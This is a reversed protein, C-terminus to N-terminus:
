WRASGRCCRRHGGRTSGWGGVEARGVPDLVRAGGAKEVRSRVQRLSGGPEGAVILMRVPSSPLDIGDADAVEAMRLAYTPTCCVVTAAHELMYRLRATTTMGGAPLCFNGLDTAAEFAAWFGVFPGFSFPFMLRDERSLGAGGYVIKWCRKFWSWSEHTDLWRLPAGTTGSTRHLRVYREM